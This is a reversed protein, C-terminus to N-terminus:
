KYISVLLDDSIEISILVLKYTYLESFSVNDTNVDQVSMAAYVGQPSQHTGACTDTM